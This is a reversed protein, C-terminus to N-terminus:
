CREPLEAAESQFEFGTVVKLVLMLRLARGAVTLSVLLVLGGSTTVGASGGGPGVVSTSHVPAEPPFQSVPSPQLSPETGLAVFM